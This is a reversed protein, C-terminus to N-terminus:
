DARNIALSTGVIIACTYRQRAAMQSFFCVAESIRSFSNAVSGHTPRVAAVLSFTHAELPAPMRHEPLRRQARMLASILRKRRTLPVVINTELELVSAFEYAVHTGPCQGRVVTIGDNCIRSCSNAIRFARRRFRVAFSLSLIPESRATGLPRLRQRHGFVRLIIVENNEAAALWHDYIPALTHADEM